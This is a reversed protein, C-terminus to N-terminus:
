VKQTTSQVLRRWAYPAVQLDLYYTFGDSGLAQLLFASQFPILTLAHLTIPSSM